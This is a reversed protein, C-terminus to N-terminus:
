AEGSRQIRQITVTYTVPRGALPHNFDVTVTEDTVAVVQAPMKHRKGEREMDMAVVADVTIEGPFRSRPVTQVLEPLHPGFAEEAELTFTRTEGQRMGVIAAAFAPMIREDGVTFVLPRDADAQDFIEGEATRGEFLVTVTDNPQVTDM